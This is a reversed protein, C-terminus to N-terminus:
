SNNVFWKETVTTLDLIKVDENKEKIEFGFVKSMNHSIVEKSESFSVYIGKEGYNKAGRYLFQMGFITKGTGPNGALLILSGRPFGGEILEDLGEIGTPVREEMQMMSMKRKYGRILINFEENM